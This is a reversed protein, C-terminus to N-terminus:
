SKPYYEPKSSIKSIKNRIRDREDFINILKNSDNYIYKNVYLEADKYCVLKWIQKKWPFFGNYDNKKEWENVENKSINKDSVMSYYINRWVSKDLKTGWSAFNDVGPLHLFEEYFIIELDGTNDRKKDENLINKKTQKMLRIEYEKYSDETFYLKLDERRLYDQLKVSLEYLDYHIKSINNKTDNYWSNYSSKLYNYKSITEDIKSEMQRKIDAKNAEYSIDLYNNIINYPDIIKANINKSISKIATLDDGSFGVTDQQFFIKKVDNEIKVAIRDDM